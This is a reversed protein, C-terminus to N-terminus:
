PVFETLIGFSLFGLFLIVLIIMALFWSISNFEHAILFVFFTEKKKQKNQFIYALTVMVDYISATLGFDSVARGFGVLLDREPSVPTFFDVFSSLSKDLGDVHHPKCFM